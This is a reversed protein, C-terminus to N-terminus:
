DNMCSLTYEFLENAIIKREINKSLFMEVEDKKPDYVEFDYSHVSSLKLLYADKDFKNMLVNFEDKIKSYSESDLIDKSVRGCKSIDTITSRKSIILKSLNFFREKEMKYKLITILSILQETTCEELPFKSKYFLKIIAIQFENLKKLYLGVKNIIEKNISYLKFNCAIFNNISAEVVIDELENSKHYKILAIKDLENEDDDDASISIIKHSYTFNFKFNSQIMNKIVVDLFSITSKNVDIKPIITRIVKNIYNHIAIDDDFGYSELFNWIVKDSYNTAKVRPEIIKYIKSIINVDNEVSVLRCIYNFITINLHNIMYKQGNHDLGYMTSIFLAYENIIPVMLRTLIASQLIVKNCSDNVKLDEIINKSTIKQNDLDLKYTSDDMAKVISRLKNDNIFELCDILFNYVNYEKGETIMRTRFKFLKIGLEKYENLIFNYDNIIKDTIGQFSKQQLHHEFIGEMGESILKEELDEIELLNAYDIKITRKTTDEIATFYQILDERQKTYTKEEEKKASTNYAMVTFTEMENLKDEPIYENKLPYNEKPLEVDTIEHIMEIIEDSLVTSSPAINILDDIFSKDEIEDALTNFLKKNIELIEDVMNSDIQSQILEVAIFKKYDEKNNYDYEWDNLIITKSSNKGM